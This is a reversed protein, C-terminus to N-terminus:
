SAFGFFRIPRYPGNHLLHRSYSSCVLGGLVSAFFVDFNAVSVKEAIEDLSAIDVNYALNTATAFIDEAISQSQGTQSGYLVRFDLKAAPCTM